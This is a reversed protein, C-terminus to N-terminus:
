TRRRNADTPAAGPDRAPSATSAPAPAKALRLWGERALIPGSFAGDDESAGVDGAVASWGRDNREIWWWACGPEVPLPLDLRGMRTLIPGLSRLSLEIRKLEAAYMSSPITISKTPLVGSTAHIEALPDILMTLIQPDARSSPALLISAVAQSQPWSAQSGLKGRTERWYVVLGDNAREHAGLRVPVQVDEFRDTQRGTGGLDTFLAHEGQHIAPPGALSVSLHARVVALPRGMLVALEECQTASEPAIHELATDIKELIDAWAKAGSNHVFWEAVSRLHPDDINWVKSSADNGPAAQWGAQWLGDESGSSIMGLAQGHADHILLSQNLQDVIVWGCIPTSAPAAGTEATGDTTSLWRLNLRAPQVFRPPLVPGRGDPGRLARSVYQPAGGFDLDETQGFTDVLRLRRVFLQGARIPDFSGADDPASRNYSLVLGRVRRALDQECAFGLPDDIPLQYSQHLGLFADNAGTLAQSLFEKGDIQGLACLAACVPDDDHGHQELMARHETEVAARDDALQEATCRCHELVYARLALDHQRMAHPTLISSGQYTKARKADVSVPAKPELEVANPALTYRGTIHDPAHDDGGGSGGRPLPLLEIEWELLIPHWPEEWACFGIRDAPPKGDQGEPRLRDIAACLAELDPVRASSLLAATSLECRLLGDADDRGDRGHRETVRVAEGHILLVPETPRYFRPGPLKHLVLLPASKGARAPNIEDVRQQTRRQADALLGASTGLRDRVMSMVADAQQEIFVRLGDGDFSEDDQWTAEAPHIVRMYKCWDAFLQGRAAEVDHLARDHRRQLDNLHTLRDALEPDPLAALDECADNSDQLSHEPRRQPKVAWVWGGFSAVFGKEHRADALRAAKDLQKGALRQDLLISELQDELADRRADGGIKGALFASLAESATNGVALEVKPSRRRSRRQAPITMSVFCVIQTDAALEGPTALKWGFRSELEAASSLGHEGAQLLSSLPDHRADSYWGFVDYRTETPAADPDHLGFVSHCNQYVTAFAPDGYGMATLPRGLHSGGDLGAPYEAADHVTRRGMLRYPRAAPRGADLDTWASPVSVHDAASHQEPWIYDCEVVWAREVVWRGGHPRRRAVLWRNPVAPFGGADGGAAPPTAQGTHRARTLGDPLAWHLHVGRELLFSQDQFPPAVVSKGLNPVDPNIDAGQWVHPLRTFHASPGVSLQPEALVLADLHIPVLLTTQTM